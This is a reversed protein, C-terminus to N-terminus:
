KSYIDRLYSSVFPVGTLVQSIPVPRDGVRGSVINVEGAATGIQAGTDNLVIEGPQLTSEVIAYTPGLLGIEQGTGRNLTRGSPHPVYTLANIIRAVEVAPRHWPIWRDYPYVMAHYTAQSSDQPVAKYEGASLYGDLFETVMKVAEQACLHYGEGATLGETMLLKRQGLIPGDDIGPTMEHLTVALEDSGLAISWVVPLCGRNLPLAAYHINLAGDKPINIVEVPVIKEYSCSLILDPSFDRICQQAEAEKVHRPQIWPVNAIQVAAKLSAGADSDVGEDSPNLVVLLAVEPRSHLYALVGTALLRNGMLCIRKKMSQRIFISM